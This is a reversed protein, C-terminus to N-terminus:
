PTKAEKAESAKALLTRLYGLRENAQKVQYGTKPVEPVSELLRDLLALAARADEPAWGPQKLWVDLAALAEQELIAGQYIAQEQGTAILDQCFRVVAFAHQAASKRDKAELDLRARALEVRGLPLIKQGLLQNLRRAPNPTASTGQEFFAFAKASVRVASFVPAAPPAAPQHVWHALAVEQEHLVGLNVAAVEYYKEFAEGAPAADQLLPRRPRPKAEALAQSPVSAPAPAVVAVVSADLSPSAKPATARGAGFGVVFTGASVLALVLVLPWPIPGRPSRAPGDQALSQPPALQSPAAPAAGNGGAEESSTVSGPLPPALEPPAAVVASEPLAVPTPEPM